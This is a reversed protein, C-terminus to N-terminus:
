HTNTAFATQIQATLAATGTPQDVDPGPGWVSLPRDWRDSQWGQMWLIPLGEAHDSHLHSLFVKSVGIKSPFLQDLRSPVTSGCDFLLVGGGAEVLLGAEGRFAGSSPGGTGLLTVHIASTQAWLVPSLYIVVTFVLAFRRM